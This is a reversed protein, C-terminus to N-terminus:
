EELQKAIWEAVDRAAHGTESAGFFELCARSNAAGDIPRALIDMLEAEDHAVILPSKEVDFYFDRERHYDGADPQYYVVPRGLLM